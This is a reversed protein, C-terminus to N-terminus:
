QTSGTTSRTPRDAPPPGARRVLDSLVLDDLVEATFRDTLTQVERDVEGQLDPGCPRARRDWQQLYADTGAMGSRMAAADIARQFRPPLEAVARDRGHRALVQAPIDRWWIVTLEPAAASRPARPSM